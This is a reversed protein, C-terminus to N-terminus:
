LSMVIWVNKIILDATWIIVAHEPDSNVIACDINNSFIKPKPYKEVDNLISEMVSFALSDKLFLESKFIKNNREIRNFM